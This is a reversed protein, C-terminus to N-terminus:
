AIRPGKRGFVDDLFGKWVQQVVGIEESAQETVKKAAKGVTETLAYPDLEIAHNDVVDAIASPGHSDVHTHTVTYIEPKAIPGDPEAPHAGSSQLNYADPLIPVHIKTHGDNLPEDFAPM